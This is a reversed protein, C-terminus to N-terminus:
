FIRDVPRGLAMSGAYLAQPGQQLPHYRAGQIDRFRRELGQTRYFGAGGAAEMALEVAELAHRTLLRKAMMVENVSEAGFSNKRVAALMSGQALRVGLLSTDM